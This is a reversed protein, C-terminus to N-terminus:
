SAEGFYMPPLGMVERAQNWPLVRGHVCPETLPEGPKLARAVIAAYICPQAALPNPLTHVPNDNQFQKERELSLTTKWPHKLPM